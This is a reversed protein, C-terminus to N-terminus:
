PEQLATTRLDERSRPVLLVRDITLQPAATRVVRLVTAEHLRITQAVAPSRCAIVLAGEKTVAIPEAFKSYATGFIDVLAHQCARLAATINLDKTIGARRAAGTLLRHISTLAM